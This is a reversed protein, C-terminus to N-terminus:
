GILFNRVRRSRVISPTARGVAANIGQVDDVATAPIVCRFEDGANTISVLFYAGLTGLLSMESSTVAGDDVNFQAFEGGSLMLRGRRRHKPDATYLTITRCVAAPVETGVVIGAQARPIYAPTKATGSQVFAKYGILEYSDIHRALWAAEIDAQFALCLSSLVAQDDSSQSVIQYHLTNVINQSQYRGVIRLICVDQTAM